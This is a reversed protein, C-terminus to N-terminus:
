VAPVTRVDIYDSRVSRKGSILIYFEEDPTGTRRRVGKSYIPVGESNFSDIIYLRECKNPLWPSRSNKTREFIGARAGELSSRLPLRDGVSGLARSNPEALKAFGLFM